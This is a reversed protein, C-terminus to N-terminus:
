SLIFGKRLIELSYHCNDDLVLSDCDHGKTPMSELGTTSCYEVYSIEEDLM